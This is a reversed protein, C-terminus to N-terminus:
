SGREIEIKYVTTEYDEANFAETEMRIYVKEGISRRNKCYDWYSSGETSFLDGAVLDKATIPTAKIKMAKGKSVPYCGLSLM